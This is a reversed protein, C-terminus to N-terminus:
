QLAPQGTPFAPQPGPTAQDGTPANDGGQAGQANPDTAPNGTSPQMMKLQAMIPPFGSILAREKDFGPKLRELMEEAIYDPNIGGIQLLLPTVREMNALEQAQNPRGTSGAVVELHIEEAIEQRSLTPWVVGPGVIRRATEASLEQLLVKGSDRAIESMLDDIVDVDDSVSSMRDGESTAVETATAGSTGGFNAEQSGLVKQIDEFMSGTEYLNPDIGTKEIRGFIDEIKQGDGLANLFVIAHASHNELSDLEDQEFVGKKAVYLPRSAWRHQRLAERARNHELQPHKMLQVDSVPYISEDDEQDNFVLCYIPFFREVVATPEDPETLFDDCGDVVTYVNGSPKHYIEWVLALDQRQEDSKGGSETVESLEGGKTRQYQKYNKGIDKGYIEKIREPTRVHEVTVRQAGVFGDLQVTRRDPIVQWFKPYDFMLGERLIVQDKQSITEIAQKLEEVEPGDSEIEGDQIDARLARIHELKEQADRLGKEDVPTRGMVRQFNLRVYGVGTTKARRVVRKFQKKFNPEQERLYYHFIIVLSKGLRELQEKMANAQEVDQVIEAAGPPPEAQMQMAEEVMQLAMGYEEPDGSWVAYELRESLKAVATPNKAYIAQVRGQIHKQVLNAVYLDEDATLEGKEDTWQDGKAFRTDFRAREFEKSWRAKDARVEKCLSKVFAKRKEDPEARTNEREMYSREDEATQVVQPPAAGVSQAITTALDSM